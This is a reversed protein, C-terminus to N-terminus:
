ESRNVNKGELCLARGVPVFSLDRKGIMAHVYAEQSTFESDDKAKLYLIFFLYDWVAHEEEIHTKFGNGHREFNTADLGCIYCKSQRFEEAATHKDRIDGFADIIIGSIIATLITTIIIFFTFDFFFRGVTHGGKGLPVEMVDAMGGGARYGYNLTYIFCQGLNGCNYIGNAVNVDDQFFWFAFVSYIYLAMVGTIATQLLISGNKRFVTDLLEGLVRFRLVADTMHYFYCLPEFLGGIAFALYAILYISTSSFLALKFFLFFDRPSKLSFDHYDLDSEPIKAKKKRGSSFYEERQENRKEVQFKIVGDKTVHGVFRFLALVAFPIGLIWLIIRAIIPLLLTHSAVDPAPESTYSAIIVINLAISLWWTLDAIFLYSLGVRGVTIRLFKRGWDRTKRSIESEDGDENEERKELQISPSKKGLLEQSAQLVKYDREMRWMLQLMADYLGEIRDYDVDRNINYLVQVKADAFEKREWIEVVEPKKFYVKVLEENNIIEISTVYKSMWNQLDSYDWNKLNSIEIIKKELDLDLFKSFLIFYSKALDFLRPFDTLKGAPNHHDQIAKDLSMLSEVLTEPKVSNLLASFFTESVKGEVMSLLLTVTAMKIDTIRTATAVDHAYLWLMSPNEHFKCFLIRTVPAFFRNSEALLDMNEPNPGVIFENLTNLVQTIVSALDDSLYVSGMESAVVSEWQIYREVVCLFNISERVIDHNDGEKNQSRLIDQLKGAPLGAQSHDGECLLQLFRFLQTVEPLDIVDPRPYLAQSQQFALTHNKIQKFLSKFFHEEDNSLKLHELLALQLQVNGGAFLVNALKFSKERIIPPSKAILRTLMKVIKRDEGPEMDIKNELQDKKFHTRMASLIDIITEYNEENKMVFAHGLLDMGRRLAARNDGKTFYKLMREEEELLLKKGFFPSAFSEINYKFSHDAVNSVTELRVKIDLRHDKQDQEEEHSNEQQVKNLIVIRESYKEADTRSASSKSLILESVAARQDSESKKEVESMFTDITSGIKLKSIMTPNLATGMARLCDRALSKEFGGDPFSRYFLIVTDMLKLSANLKLDSKGVSKSLYGAHRSYLTSILPFAGKLIFDDSEEKTFSMDSDLDEQDSEIQVLIKEAFNRKVAITRLITALLTFLQSTRTGKPLKTQVYLNTLLNLLPKKITLPLDSTLISIMEDFSLLTSCLTQAEPNDETCKSLLQILKSRHDLTQSSNEKGSLSNLTQDNELLFQVIRIQNELSRKGQIKISVFKQLAAFLMPSAGEKFTMKVLSELQLGTVCVAILPNDRLIEILLDAGAETWSNLVLMPFYENWLLEQNTPNKRCFMKLFQCCYRRTTEFAPLQTEFDAALIQCIPDYLEIGRYMDQIKLKFQRGSDDATILLNPLASNNLKSIAHPDTSVNGRFISKKLENHDKRIKSFRERIFEDVEVHLKKIFRKIQKRPSFLKFLNRFAAMKLNADGDKTFRTLAKLLPHEPIGDEGVAVDKLYNFGVVKIGLQIKLDRRIKKVDENGSRAKYASLLDTMKMDLRRDIIMDFIQCLQLKIDRLIQWDRKIESSRQILDQILNFTEEIEGSHILGFLVMYKVLNLIEHILQCEEQSKEEEGKENKLIFSANKLYSFSEERIKKWDGSDAHGGKTKEGGVDAWFRVHHLMSIPYQPPCDVFIRTFLNCYAARLKSDLKPNFLAWLCMQDDIQFVQKIIEIADNNRGLVMESFLSLVAKHQKMDQSSLDEVPLLDKEVQLRLGKKDLKPKFVVNEYQKLTEAIDIQNANMGVGDVSCLVSLFKLCNPNGHKLNIKLMIEALKRNVNQDLDVVLSNNEFMRILLHIIADLVKSNNTEGLKSALLEIHEFLYLSNKPYSTVCVTLLRYIALNFEVQNPFKPNWPIGLIETLFDMVGISRCMTQRDRIAMDDKKVAFRGKNWEPNSDPKALILFRIMKAITSICNNVDKTLRGDGNEPLTLKSKIEQINDFLTLCHYLNVKESPHSRVM